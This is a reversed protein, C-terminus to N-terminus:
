PKNHASPLRTEEMDLFEFHLGHTYKTHGNCCSSISKYSIHLKEYAERANRFIEGTEICRVKKSNTRREQIKYLSDEYMWYYGGATKRSQTCVSSILGTKVGTAEEAEYLNEYTKIISQTKMDIQLVKRNVSLIKSKNYDIPANDKYAWIFGSCTYAMGNLCRIIGNDTIGLSHSAESISNWEKIKNGSQDYQTIPASREEWMKSSCISHFNQKLPIRTIGNKINSFDYYEPMTELVCPENNHYAWLYGGSHKRIGRACDSINSQEVGTIRYAETISKYSAIYEGSLSYQDVAHSRTLAAKNQAEIPLPRGPLGEGGPSMNYGNIFSDYKAILEVEIQLALIHSLNTYLIEHRFNNWGYKKIARFFYRNNEYGFGYNWRHEPEQRTIGVYQKNSPSTHVYVSYMNDTPAFISGGINKNCTKIM